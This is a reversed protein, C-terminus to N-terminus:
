VEEDFIRLLEDSLEQEVRLTQANAKFATEALKLNVAEEALDM